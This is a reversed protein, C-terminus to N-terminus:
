ELDLKPLCQFFEDYNEAHLVHQVNQPNTFIHTLLGYLLHFDHILADQMAILIILNIQHEEAAIPTPNVLIYLSNIKVQSGCVHPIAILNKFITTDIQERAFVEAEFAIDIAHRKLLQQCIYHIADSYSSFGHDYEYNQPMLYGTLYLNLQSLRKKTKIRQIERRILRYDESKPLPSIVVTNLMNRIPLTSIILDSSPSEQDIDTSTIIGSISVSNGTNQQIAGILHQSIHGFSPCILVASVRSEFAFRPYMYDSILLALWGAEVGPRVLPCIGMLMQLLQASVDLLLPHAERLSAIVPNSIIISLQQRLLMKVFFVELLLPFQDETFDLHIDAGIKKLAEALTLAADDPLAPGGPLYCDTETSGFLLAALYEIEAETYVCSFHQGLLASFSSAAAYEPTDSLGDFSVESEDMYRGHLMLETQLVIRLVLDSYFYGNVSLSFHEMIESLTDHIFAVDMEPFANVIFDLTLIRVRSTQFICYVILARLDAARGSLYFTDRRRHLHLQFRKVFNRLYRIDNDLTRDSISFIDLLQDIHIRGEWMLIRLIYFKRDYPLTPISRSDQYPLTFTRHQYRYGQRSSAIPIQPHEANIQQVYSHITRVTTHLYSALESASVWNESAELYSCLRELNERKM